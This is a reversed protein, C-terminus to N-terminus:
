RGPEERQRELMDMWTLVSMAPDVYPSSLTRGWRGELKARLRDWLGQVENRERLASLYQKVTFVPEDADVDAPAGEGTLYARNAQERAAEVDAAMEDAWIKLTTTM